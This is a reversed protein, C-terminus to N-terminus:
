EVRDHGILIGDESLLRSAIRNTIRLDAIRSRIGVNVIRIRIRIRNGGEGTNFFSSVVDRVDVFGFITSGSGQEADPPPSSLKVPASLVRKSALMQSPWPPQPRCRRRPCQTSHPAASPPPSAPPAAHHHADRVRVCMHKNKHTDTVRICVSAWARPSLSSCRPLVFVRLPPTDIRPRICAHARPPSVISGPSGRAHLPALPSAAPPEAGRPRGTSCVGADGQLQRADGRRM